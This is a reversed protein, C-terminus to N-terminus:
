IWNESHILMLKIYQQGGLKQLDTRNNNHNTSNYKQANKNTKKTQVRM